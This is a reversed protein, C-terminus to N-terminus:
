KWFTRWSGDADRTTEAVLRPRKAAPPDGLVFWRVRRIGYEFAEPMIVGSVLTPIAAEAAAEPTLDMTDLEAPWTCSIPGAGAKQLRQVLASRREILAGRREEYPTPPVAVPQPEPAAVPQPRPAPPTPRRGAQWLWFAAAVAALGALVGLARM